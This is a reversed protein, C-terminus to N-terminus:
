VRRSRPAAVALQWQGTALARVKVTGLTGGGGARLREALRALAPGDPDATGFHALGRALLRRQLEPPLAEPDLVLHAGAVTARSAWALEAAWLLAAEAEACHAASAALRETSLWESAALLSRARSRDFRASSNAPDIIPTWGRACVPSRLDARRWGLLPRLLAVGNALDRRPRIGGLGAVGSGRALRLLVTEAQDDAHHATLLFAITRPACWEALAAYRADRAGAQVNSDAIPVAPQLTANPLGLGEALRAVMACEAANEARLRHDFSLVTVQGAFAEAALAMLALSDSGGSVAVALRAADSWEAGALAIVAEAFAESTLAGPTDREANQRHAPPAPM